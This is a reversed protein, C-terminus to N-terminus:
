LDGPKDFDVGAVSLSGTEYLLIHLQDVVCLSTGSSCPKMEVDVWNWCTSLIKVTLDPALVDM